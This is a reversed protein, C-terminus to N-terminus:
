GERAARRIASSLEEISGPRRLRRAHLTQRRGLQAM